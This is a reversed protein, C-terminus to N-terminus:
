LDAVEDVPRDLGIGAAHEDPECECNLRIDIRLNQNDILRQCYTIGAEHMAAHQAEMLQLLLTGGDQKDTM